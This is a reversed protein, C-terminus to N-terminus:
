NKVVEHVEKWCIGCKKTNKLAKQSCLKCYIVHCCPLFKYSAKKENCMLCLNTCKINEKKEQLKKKKKEVVVVVEEKKEEKLIVPPAPLTKKPMEDPILPNLVDKQNDKSIHNFYCINQFKCKNLLYYDFCINKSRLNQFFVELKGQIQFLFGAPNKRYLDLEFLAKVTEQNKPSHRFPCPSTCPLGSDFNRCFPRKEPTSSM